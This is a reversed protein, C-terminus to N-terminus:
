RKSSRIAVFIFEFERRNATREKRVTYSVNESDFKIM